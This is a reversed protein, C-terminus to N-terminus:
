WWTPLKERRDLLRRQVDQLAALRSEIESDSGRGDYSPWNVFYFKLDPDGWQERLFRGADPFIDTSSAKSASSEGGSVPIGSIRYPILPAVMGNFLDGPALRQGAVYGLVVPFAEKWRCATKSIKISRSCSATTSRNQCGSEVLESRPMWGRHGDWASILASSAVPVGLRKETGARIRLLGGVLAARRGLGGEAVTRRNYVGAGAVVVPIPVPPYGIALWRCMAEWVKMGHQSDLLSGCRAGNRRPADRYGKGFRGADGARHRGRHGSCYRGTAQATPGRRTVKEAFTLRVSPAPPARGWVSRPTRTAAGDQRQFGDAVAPERWTRGPVSSGPQLGHVDGCRVGCLARTVGLGFAPMHNEIGIKLLVTGDANDAVVIKKRGGTRRDVVPARVISLNYGQGAAFPFHAEQWM